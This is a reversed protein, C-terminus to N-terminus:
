SCLVQALLFVWIPDGYQIAGSTILPTAYLALASIQDKPTVHMSIASPWGGYKWMGGVRAINTILLLGGVPSLSGCCNEGSKTSKTEEHRITSALTRGDAWARSCFAKAWDGMPLAKGVGAAARSALRAGRSFFACGGCPGGVGVTCLRAPDCWHRDGPAESTTVVGRGALLETGWPPVSCASVGLTSAKTPAVAAEDEGELSRPVSRECDGDSPPSAPSAKSSAMSASSSLRRARSHTLLMTGICVTSSSASLGVLERQECGPNLTQSESSSPTSVRM